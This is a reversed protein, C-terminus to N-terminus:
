YAASLRNSPTEVRKETLRLQTAAALLTLFSRSDVCVYEYQKCLQGWGLEALKERTEYSRSPLYFPPLARTM